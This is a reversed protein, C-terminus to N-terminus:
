GVCGPRDGSSRTPAGARRPGFLLVRVHRRPRRAIRGRSCCAGRQSADRRLGDPRHCEGRADCRQNPLATSVREADEATFALDNARGGYDSVGVFVGYVNAPGEGMGTSAVAAGADREFVVRYPGVEDAQYSTAMVRYRGTEPLVYDVRSESTSGEWDDNDIQDGSPTILGVYTDFSQSQMAVSVREGATGEFVYMDRYEGGDLQTDTEELAGAVPTGDQLESVDRGRQATRGSARQDITLEYSGTEGPQYSTVVVRYEGSEALTMEVESEGPRNELDDNEKRDSDPGVVMLYTDFDSSSVSARLQQGPSGQIRYVDAYEGSNITEDGDELAGRENRVGDTSAGHDITLVYSGVEEPAYSTAIVRYEGTEALTSSIVSRRASGEFDDNSEREDSPAILMLYPDLEESRLDVVVQDGATGQFTYTDYFEGSTLTADGPRLEVPNPVARTVPVLRRRGM